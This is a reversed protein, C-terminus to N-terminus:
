VKFDLLAQKICDDFVSGQGFLFQVEIPLIYVEISNETLFTKHAALRTADKETTLLWKEPQNLEQLQRAMQGVDYNSFDRHDPFAMATIKAVEGELYDMLYDTKAIGTVALISMDTQLVKTKLPNGLCFPTGYSYYSFFVKQDAQPQLAALFAQRDAETLDIPCKTVVIIQARKYGSRWERLRGSPLPWDAFFPRRYETLLVAYYPKVALHQYADDLLITQISPDNRLMQPIGYARKEAVAVSVEPYKQKFQLPEDGVEAATNFPEVAYFGTTKRGYGRSLVGVQIYPQLLRILYEIHPTKGSGGVNLNGVCLTPIDFETQKLFGSTYLQTRLRGILGYLLSFPALLLSLIPHM